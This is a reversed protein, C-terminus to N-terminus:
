PPVLTAPCPECFGETDAPAEESGGFRSSIASFLSEVTMVVLFLCLLAFVSGLIVPVTVLVAKGVEGV